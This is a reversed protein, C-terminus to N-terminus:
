KNQTKLWLEISHTLPEGKAKLEFPDMFEQITHKDPELNAIEGTYGHVEFVYLPVTMEIEDRVVDVVNDVVCTARTITIGCEERVERVLIDWALEHPKGKGGPLSWKELKKHKQILVKGEKNKIVAGVGKQPAFDEATWKSMPFTPATSPVRVWM